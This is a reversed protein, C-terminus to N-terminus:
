RTVDWYAVWILINRAIWSSSPKVNPFLPPPQTNSMGWIPVTGSQRGFRLDLCIGSCHCLMFLHSHSINSLRELYQSTFRDHHLISAIRVRHPFLRKLYWNELLWKLNTRPADQYNHYQPQPLSPCWSQVILVVVDGGGWRGRFLNCPFWDNAGSKHSMTRCQRLITTTSIYKQRLSIDPSISLPAHTAKELSQKEWLEFLAESFFSYRCACTYCSTKSRENDM